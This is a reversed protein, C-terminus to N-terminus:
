RIVLVPVKCARILATTTSGIILSRLRAHGYAGMVLLAHPAHETIKALAEEPPANQTEIRAVLGAQTLRQQAAALGKSCAESPVGATALTVELGKTLPSQAVYDVAKQSSQSHDYALVVREIPAFHRNAILVPKQTARLVRELSSGLHAMAQSAAEGRKGLLIMEGRTEKALVTELVDGQRLRTEVVAGKASVIQAADELIARGKAHALRAREADLESLEQLLKSRAGLRIAGSLDQANSGQEPAIVHYLRTAWGTKEAIWAAHHCLSESYASGDVLALLTNTTM